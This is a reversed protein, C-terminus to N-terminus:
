TVEMQTILLDRISSAPKYVNKVLNALNFGTIQGRNLKVTNFLIMLWEMFDNRTSFFHMFDAWCVAFCTPLPFPIVQQVLYFSHSPNKKLKWGKQMMKRCRSFTGSREGMREGGLLVKLSRVKNWRNIKCLFMVDSMALLSHGLSFSHLLKPVQREFHGGGGPVLSVDLCLTSCGFQQRLWAWYIGFDPGRPQTIQHDRSEITTKPEGLLHSRHCLGDGM